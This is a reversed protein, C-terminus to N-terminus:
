ATKSLVVANAAVLPEIDVGCVPLVELSSPALVGLEELVLGAVDRRLQVLAQQVAAQKEIVRDEFAGRGKRGGVALRVEPQEALDVGVACGCVRVEEPAKGDRGDTDAFSGADRGSLAGRM